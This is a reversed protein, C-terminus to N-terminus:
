LAYIITNIKHVCNLVFHSFLLRTTPLNITRFYHLVTVIKIGAVEVDNVWM